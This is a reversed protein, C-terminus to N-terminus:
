SPEGETIGTIHVNRRGQIIKGIVSCPATFCKSMEALADHASDEPVVAILGIGMNFVRYMEAQPINGHEELCTFVAPVEWAHPDLVAASNEQLIRPVNEILGGGTIHAMGKVLVGADLVARIGATYNIHPRLLADGLTLGHAIKDGLGISQYSLVKRALSYGNTHLGSSAIGIVVDGPIISAGNIIRDQEVIGTVVGVLDHSGPLYVGPMEATEGGVLSVGIEKCAEAIGQVILAVEEPILIDNAIYDLFTLPAAGHVAIDNCCASVLDAGIHSFDGMEKAILTKTGVGDISQVLVPNRFGTIFGSLNYFSGFSGIGCLVAPTFTSAATERIRQVVENGADISVGSDKYTTSM